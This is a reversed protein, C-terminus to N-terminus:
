VIGDPLPVATEVSRGNSFPWVTRLLRTLFFSSKPTQPVPVGVYVEREQKSTPPIYVFESYRGRTGDSSMWEGEFSSSVSSVGKAAVFKGHALIRMEQCHEVWYAEGSHNNMYGEELTWTNGDGDLRSGSLLRGNNKNSDEEQVVLNLVYAVPATNGYVTTKDYRGTIEQFRMVCKYKGTLLPITPTQKRSSSAQKGSHNNKLKVQKAVTDVTKAFGQHMAQRRSRGRASWPWVMNGNNRRSSLRHIGYLFCAMVAFPAIQLVWPPIVWGFGPINDDDFNYNNNVM